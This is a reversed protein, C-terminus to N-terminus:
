QAAASVMTAGSVADMGATMDMAKVEDVTKGVFKDLLGGNVAADFYPKNKKEWFEENGAQVSGTSGTGNDKVATIVGNDDVDVSVKVNYFPPHIFPTVSPYNRQDVNADGELTKGALACGACAALSLVLMLAFLSRLMKM